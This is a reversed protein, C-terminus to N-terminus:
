DFEIMLDGTEVQSGPSVLLRAVKGDQEAYITTEMKMAELVLLKQGKKVTDGAVVSVTVVMAPMTSGLQNPNSPDAKETKSIISDLAKDPISVDRPQGNLEFFVNRYGEANAEGITLFKIILTKGEEIEVAIEEGTELGYFFVSTPLISTNMFKVRHAAYDEFVKNYLLYSVAEKDTATRELMKTAKEKAAEFDADPLTKGPRDKLPEEGKLIIKQITEPFGGVPQGMMGGILDIVSAPFALEREQDM